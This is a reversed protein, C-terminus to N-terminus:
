AVVVFFGADTTRVARDGLKVAVGNEVQGRLLSGQTRPGELSLLWDSAMSLSSLLCLLVVFPNEHVGMDSRMPDRNDVLTTM